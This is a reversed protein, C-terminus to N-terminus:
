VKWAGQEEQLVAEQQQGQGRVQRPAGPRVPPVQGPLLGDRGDRDPHLQPLAASRLQLM